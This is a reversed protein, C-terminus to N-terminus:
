YNGNESLITKVIDIVEFVSQNNMATNNSRYYDLNKPEILETIAQEIFQFSRVVIGLKNKEIWKVNDLEQLMTSSNHETIIPLKMHIAERTSM